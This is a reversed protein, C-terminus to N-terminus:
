ADPHRDGEDIIHDGGDGDSGARRVRGRKVVLGAEGLRDWCEDDAPADVLHVDGLHGTGAARGVPEVGRDLPDLGFGCGRSGVVDVFGRMLLYFLLALLGAVMDLWPRWTVRLLPTWIGIRPNPTKWIGGVLGLLGDGVGEGDAVAVEVGGLCVLVLLGDAPGDGGAADRPVLQEDGGLQPDLVAALVAGLSGELLRQLPEAEVVEVQVQDV